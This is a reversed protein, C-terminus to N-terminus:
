LEGRDKIKVIHRTTGNESGDKEMMRVVEM